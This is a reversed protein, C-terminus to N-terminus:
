CLPKKSGCLLPNKAVASGRAKKGNPLLGKQQWQAAPEKAAMPLSAGNSGSVLTGKLQVLYCPKESGSLLLNKKCSNPPLTKLHWM